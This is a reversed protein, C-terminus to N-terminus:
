RTYDEPHERIFSATNELMEALDQPPLDSVGASSVEFQALGPIETLFVDIIISFSPQRSVNEKLRRLDAESDVVKGLTDSMDKNVAQILADLEGDNM